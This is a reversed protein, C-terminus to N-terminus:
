NLTKDPWFKFGHILAQLAFGSDTMQYVRVGPTLTGSIEEGAEVADTEVKADAQASYDWGSEIFDDIAEQSDFIMVATYDKLGVGFGTGAGVMRMYTDSGDRHDRLIGVGRATSFLLLNIGTNSFIAYGKAALLVEEADSVEQYLKTLVNLRMQKIEARREDPSADKGFASGIPLTLSLMLILLFRM